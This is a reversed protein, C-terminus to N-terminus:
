LVLPVTFYGEYQGGYQCLRLHGVAWRVAVICKTVLAASRRRFAQLPLPFSAAAARRGHVAACEKASAVRPRSGGCTRRASRTPTARLIQLLAVGPAPEPSRLRIPASASVPCPWDARASLAARQSAANRTGLRRGKRAPRGGDEAARRQLTTAARARAARGKDRAAHELRPPVADARPARQVSPPPRVARSARARPPSPSIRYLYVNVLM